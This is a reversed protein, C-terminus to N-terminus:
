RIIARFSVVDQADNSGIVIGLGEYTGPRLYNGLIRPNNIGGITDRPDPTAQIRFERIQGDLAYSGTMDWEIDDDTTGEYECVGDVSSRRPCNLVAVPPRTGPLYVMVPIDRSVEAGKDDKVSVTLTRRAPMNAEGAMSYTAEALNGWGSDYLTRGGGDRVEFRYQLIDATNPDMANVRSVGPIDQSFRYESVIRGQEDRFGLIVPPMNNGNGSDPSANGTDGIPIGADLRSDDGGNNSVDSHYGSDIRNELGGDPAYNSGSDLVVTSRNGDVPKSNNSNDGSCGALGAVLAALAVYKIGM